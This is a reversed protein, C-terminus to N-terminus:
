GPMELEFLANTLNEVTMVEFTHDKFINYVPLELKKELIDFIYLFCAPIIALERDILSADKELNTIGTVDKVADRITNEIVEKSNM